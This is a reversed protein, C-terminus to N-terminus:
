HEGIAQSLLTWDWTSDYIYCFKANFLGCPNTSIGYFALWGVQFIDGELFFLPLNCLYTSGPIPPFEPLYNNQTM